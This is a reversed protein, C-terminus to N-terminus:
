RTIQAKNEKIYHLFYRYESAPFPCPWEQNHEVFHYANLMQHEAPVSLIHPTFHLAYGAAMLAVKLMKFSTQFSVYPALSQLLLIMSEINTNYLKLWIGLRM